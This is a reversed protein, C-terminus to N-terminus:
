HVLTSIRQDLTHLDVPKVLHDMFGADHTRYVDSPQGYGTLALAPVRAAQPLRRARRLFECGDMGPLGIDALIVDPRSSPLTQLAEEASGAARVQYGLARLSEGLLERTDTNDEVLLVVVSRARAVERQPPAEFGMVAPGVLPLEVSFRSGKGPGESEALVSGGHLGVLSKVLALGIGLGPKGHSQTDGHQFMTNFLKPLRAPEIGIGTDQVVIRGDAGSSEVSVDIRGGAPTFKLANTLLNLVVQQLRDSDADVWLDSAVRMELRVHARKANERQSEVAFRVVLELPVRSKRLTVKGRVVRSLDLLDDLLRAELKANRSATELARRAVAPDASLRLLDLSAVIASLPNRLEHSIVAIFSDKARSAQQAQARAAQELALIQAREKEARKIESIDRAFSVSFQEGESELLHITIEVPFTSGDKRRHTSEIVRAGTNRLGARHKVWLEPSFSPDLEWVRMSALEERSYGLARCAAENAYRPRADDGIWYTPIVSRDLFVQALRLSREERHRETVDRAAAIILKPESLLSASWSLWRFSGDKCVCRNEFARLEGMRELRALAAMTLERDDPHVLEIWPRSTLEERSWGLCKTWAPNVEKLFGHLEAACLIDISHDFLWGRGIKPQEGGELVGLHM